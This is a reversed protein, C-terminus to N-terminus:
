EIAKAWRLIISIVYYTAIAVLWIEMIALFTNVPIFWNVYGLWQGIPSNSYNKLFIFPSDPLISLAGEIFNYVTDNFGEM